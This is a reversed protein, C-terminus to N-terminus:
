TSAVIHRQALTQRAHKEVFLPIFDRIPRNDFLAHAQSVAADVDAPTAGPFDRILRHKIEALATREAIESMVMRMLM